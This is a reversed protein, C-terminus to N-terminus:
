STRSVRCTETGRTSLYGEITTSEYRTAAWALLDDLAGVFRPGTRLMAWAPLGFQPLEVAEWPHFYIHLYPAFSAAARLAVTGLGPGLTRFWIWSVPARIGPVVSIPVRLIADDWWPTRPWRLGNYRGPVWTPHPSADYHFGAEHLLQGACVQLRPTRVGLVACGAVSEITDRACRLRDRATGPEMRGYDDQHVLGHAAVEHGARVLGRTCDAEATAFTATVFFTARVGACELRPLIRELGARTVRTQEAADLAHGFEVPWDFEEVDFTLLLPKRRDSIDTASGVV